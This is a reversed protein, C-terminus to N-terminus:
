ESNQQEDWEAWAIIVRPTRPQTGLKKAVQEISDGKSLTKKM